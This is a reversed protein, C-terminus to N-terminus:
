LRYPHTDRPLRAVVDDYLHRATALATDAEEAAPEESDGPYRFAWAFVTLPVAQICSAELTRDIEVCAAGLEALDHTRRFSRDHWTLFAKLAKEAAQQAHFVIDTTIPPQATREFSGARLDEAARVLWGRTEAVREPDLPM